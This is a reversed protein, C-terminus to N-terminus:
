ARVGALNIPLLPGVDAPTHDAPPMAATLQEELTTPEPM